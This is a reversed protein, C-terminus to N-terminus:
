CTLSLICNLSLSVQYGLISDKGIKRPPFSSSLYTQETGQYVWDCIQYLLRLRTDRSARVNKKRPVFYDFHTSLIFFVTLLITFEIFTSLKCSLWILHPSVLSVESDGYVLIQGPKLTVQSSEVKYPQAPPAPNGPPPAALNTPPVPPGGPTPALPTGMLGPPHPAGTPPFTPPTGM